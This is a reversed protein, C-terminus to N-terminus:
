ICNCISTKRNDLHKNPQRVWQYRLNEDHPYLLRLAKHISLLWGVRDLVDHSHPIARKGQRYQSLLARSNSSLGLLALQVEQPLQWHEFLRTIMSALAVRSEETSLDSPFHESHKRLVGM